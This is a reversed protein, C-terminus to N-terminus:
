DPSQLVVMVELNTNEIRRTKYELICSRKIFENKKNLKQKRKEHEDNLKAKECCQLKVTETYANFCGRLRTCQMAACCLHGKKAHENDQHVTM